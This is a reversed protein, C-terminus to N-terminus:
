LFEKVDKTVNALRNMWGRFFVSQDLRQAVIKRYFINREILMDLILQEQHAEIAKEYTVPGLSGDIALKTGQRNLAKQLIKIANRPGSNVGFDFLLFDVGSLMHDLKMKDWYYKKYIPAVEEPTDLLLIDNVDVDGDGDLDGYDYEVYFDKLTALTIGQNTAGGSDKLHNSFGGEYRLVKELAKDFNEKM